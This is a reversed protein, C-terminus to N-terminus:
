QDQVWLNSPKSFVLTADYYTNRVRVKISVKEKVNGLTWYEVLSVGMSIVRGTRTTGKSMFAVTDNLKIPRGSGDLFEM